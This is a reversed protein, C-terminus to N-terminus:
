FNDCICIFQQEHNVLKTDCSPGCFNTVKREYCNEIATKLEIFSKKLYM